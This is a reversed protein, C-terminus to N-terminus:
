KDGETEESLLIPRPEPRETPAIFDSERKLAFVKEATLEIEIPLNRPNYSEDCSAGNSFLVGDQELTGYGCHIHGFAHLKLNPLQKIRKLLEECGVNQDRPVYDLIGFPPGHTILVNTDEPIKDWHQKIEEGRRRNFAWDYFWPTIASLWFSVGEIVMGSDNCYTIGNEQLIDIADVSDKNEFCFDHNGPTFLKWQFDQKGMWKAFKEIARLSGRGTADGSHVLVDGEPLPAMRYALEHTDSIHVLKM